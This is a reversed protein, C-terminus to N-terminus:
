TRQVPTVRADQGPSPGTSCRIILEIPLLIQRDRSEPDILLEGVRRGREAIPQRVTTLGTAEAAPIDDFGCVSVDRPVQIGLEAAAELLSETARGCPLRREPGAGEGPNEGPGDPDQGAGSM